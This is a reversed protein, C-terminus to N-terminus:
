RDSNAFIKMQWAEPGPTDSLQRPWITGPVSKGKFHVTRSPGPHDDWFLEFTKLPPDLKVEKKQCARNVWLPHWFSSCSAKVDVYSGLISGLVLIRRFMFNASGDPRSCLNCAYPESFWSKFFPELFLVNLDCVKQYMPARLSCFRGFIVGLYCGRQPSVAVGSQKPRGRLLAVGFFRLVSMNNSGM